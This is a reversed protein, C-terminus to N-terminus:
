FSQCVTVQRCTQTTPKSGIGVGAFSLECTRHQLHSAVFGIHRVVQCKVRKEHLTSSLTDYINIDRKKTRRDAEM